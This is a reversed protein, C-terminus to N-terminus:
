INMMPFEFLATETIDAPASNNANPGVAACGSLAAALVAFTFLQRTNRTTAM